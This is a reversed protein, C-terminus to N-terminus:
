STIKEEAIYDALDREQQNNLSGVSSANQSKDDADDGYVSSNKSLRQNWTPKWASSSDGFNKSETHESQKLWTSMNGHSENYSPAYESTNIKNM